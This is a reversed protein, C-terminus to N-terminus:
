VEEISLDATTAIYTGDPLIVSDSFKVSTISVAKGDFLPKGGIAFTVLTGKEAYKTLMDKEEAVDVGLTELLKINMAWKGRDAGNFIMKPKKNVYAIESWRGARTEEINTGTFVRDSSVEFLIEEANVKSKAVGTKTNSAKTDVQVAKKWGSKTPDIPKIPDSKFTAEAVLDGKKPGNFTAKVRLKDKSKSM